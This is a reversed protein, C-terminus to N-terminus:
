RSNTASSGGIAARSTRQWAWIGSGILSPSRLRVHRRSPKNPDTRGLRRAKLEAGLETLVYQQNSARPNDPNTMAIVGAQILPDLHNEKFRTARSRSWSSRPRTSVSM